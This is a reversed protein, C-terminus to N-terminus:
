EHEPVAAAAEDPNINIGLFPPLTKVQEGRRLHEGRSPRVPVKEDGARGLFGDDNQGLRQPLSFEALAVRGSQGSQLRLDSSHAVRGAFDEGGGKTRARCQRARDGLGIPRRPEFPPNM